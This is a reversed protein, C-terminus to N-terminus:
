ELGVKVRCTEGLEYYRYSSHPWDAPNDVLGRKVPNYHIYQLIRLIDKERDMPFIRPKEKWFRFKSKGATKEYFRQLDIGNQECFKHLQPNNEALLHRAKGSMSRRLGRVFREINTGQESSALLHFHEPMLVYGILDVHWLILMESIEDYFAGTIDPYLLIPQWQHLTGTIHHAAGDVYHNIWNRPM